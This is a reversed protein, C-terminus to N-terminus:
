SRAWRQIEFDARLVDRQRHSIGGFTKSPSIGAQRFLKMAKVRGVKPVHLMLDYVKATLIYEPPDILLDLFNVRRGKLERKLLARASRVDNALQLASLRQEPSRPPASLPLERSPFTRRAPATLTASM